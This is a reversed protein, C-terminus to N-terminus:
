AVAQPLPPLTLFCGGFSAFAIFASSCSFCPFGANYRWRAGYLHGSVVIRTNSFGMYMEASIGSGCWYDFGQAVGGETVSPRLSTYSPSKLSHSSSHQILYMDPLWATLSNHFLCLNSPRSSPLGKPRPKSLISAGEVYYNPQAKVAHSGSM